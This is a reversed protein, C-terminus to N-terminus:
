RDDEEPKTPDPLLATARAADAAPGALTVTWVVDDEISAALARPGDKNPCCDDPHHEFALPFGDGERTAPGIVRSVNTELWALYARAGDASGFRLARVVTKWVDGRRDTWVRETGSAFGSGDLLDTLAGDTTEDVLRQADLPRVTSRGELMGADITPPDAPSSCALTVATMAVAAVAALNRTRVGIGREAPKHAAGPARMMRAYWRSRNRRFHPSFM